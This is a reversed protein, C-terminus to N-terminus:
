TMLKKIDNEISRLLLLGFTGIIKKRYMESVNVYFDGDVSMDKLVYEIDMTMMRRISSMDVVKSLLRSGIMMKGKRMLFDIRGSNDIMTFKKIDLNYSWAIELKPTIVEFPPMLFYYTGEMSTEKWPEINPSHEKSSREYKRGGSIIVEREGTGNDLRLILGDMLERVFEDDKEVWYFGMIRTMGLCVDCGM